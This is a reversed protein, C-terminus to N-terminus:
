SSVNSTLSATHANSACTRRLSSTVSVKMKCSEDMRDAILPIAEFVRATAASPEVELVMSKVKPVDSRDISESAIPKAGTYSNLIINPLGSM